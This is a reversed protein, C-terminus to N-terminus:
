LVICEDSGEYTDCEEILKQLDYTPTGPHTNKLNTCSSRLEPHQIDFLAYEEYLLSLAIWNDAFKSWEPLMEGLEKIRAKWEPIREILRYCRGFDYYDCPTMGHWEEPKQIGHAEGLTYFITMSSAGTDNGDIWTRLREVIPKDLPDDYIKQM